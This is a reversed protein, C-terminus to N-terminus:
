VKVRTVIKMLFDLFKSLIHDGEGRVNRICTVFDCLAIFGDMKFNVDKSPYGYQGISVSDHSLDESLCLTIYVYTPWHEDLENYKFAVSYSIGIEEKDDPDSKAISYLEFGNREVNGFSQMLMLYLLRDEKEESM